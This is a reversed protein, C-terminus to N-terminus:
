NSMAWQVAYAAKERTPYYNAYNDWTFGFRELDSLNEPTINLVVKEPEQHDIIQGGFTHIKYLIKRMTQSQKVM